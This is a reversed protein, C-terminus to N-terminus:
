AEDDFFSEEVYFYQNGTKLIRVKCIHENDDRFLDSVLHKSGGRYGSFPSLVITDNLESIFIVGYRRTTSSGDATSSSRTYTHELYAEGTYMSYKRPRASNLIPLIFLIMFGVFITMFMKTTGGKSLLYFGFGFFALVIILVYLQKANAINIKKNDASDVEIFNLSKLSSKKLSM